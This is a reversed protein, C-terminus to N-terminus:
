LVELAPADAPVLGTERALEALAALAARGEEGLDRTWDNVYLEVHQWLVADVQERAAARMSPLCAERHALGWELSDAIVGALAALRADGLARRAVIGGLPLPAGTRREWTEGLDEVRELGYTGYTFRGEHICVGLDAKGAALAPMIASFVVQEVRPAAPHFLRWLLHATTHEGPCLVRADEEAPRPGPRALVLPGVGFGLASGAPLVVVRDALRLAAHFSAKAADFEGALLRRNLDEVDTLEVEIDLGRWDVERGRLAHFAFTDNPCTSIGLKVRDTM